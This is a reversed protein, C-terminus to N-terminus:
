MRLKQLNVHIRLHVWFASSSDIALDGVDGVHEFWSLIRHMKWGCMLGVVVCGLVRASRSFCATIPPLQVM